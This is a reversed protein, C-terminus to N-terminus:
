GGGVDDRTAAQRSRPSDDRRAGAPDRSRLTEEEVDWDDMSDRSLGFSLQAMDGGDGALVVLSELEHNREELEDFM